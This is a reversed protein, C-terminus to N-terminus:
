GFFVKSAIKLGLWLFWLGFVTIYGASQKVRAVIALGMSLLVLTWITFIDISLLLTKLVGPSGMYYGVSTGLMNDMTFNEPALGALLMIAVILAQIAYPLYAYNLTAFVQKFTAKGGFAFNITPWLVVSVILPLLVSFIPAGYLGWTLSTVLQQRIQVVVDPKLAAM